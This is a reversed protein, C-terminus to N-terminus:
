IDGIKNRGLDLSVLKSTGPNNLIAKSIDCCGDDRVYNEHLDLCSLVCEDHSLAEGLREVHSIFNRSLDLKEIKSFALNEFIEDCEKNEIRNASLNLQVLQSLPLNNALISLSKRGFEGLKRNTFNDMISLNLLNLDVLKSHPLANALECIGVDEEINNSWNVGVICVNSLNLVLINSSMLMKAIAHVGKEIKCDQLDFLSVLCDPHAISLSLANLSEFGLISSKFIIERLSLVRDVSGVVPIRRVIVSSFSTLFEQPFSGFCIKELNSFYILKMEYVLSFEFEILGIDLISLNPFFNSVRGWFGLNFYYDTFDRKFKMHFVFTLPFPPFYGNFLKWCNWRKFLGLLYEHDHFYNYFLRNLCILPKLNKWVHKLEVFINFEIM